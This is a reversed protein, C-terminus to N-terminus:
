RAGERRTNIRLIDATTNSTAARSMYLSTGTGWAFSRAAPELVGPYLTEGSGDPRVLVIPEAADTGVLLDGNAAIALSTATASNFATVDFHEEAPGLEGSGSVAFRWVKSAGAQEAVAYLYGDFVTLAAVKAEFGYESVSQDPAVRYIVANDGGAFLNGDDDFAVATLTASNDPLVVWTQQAGGEAFRFIARVGRVTYLLGDAGFVMSDWKFTTEVYTSRTGDPTIRVIGVSRGDSFLSVYVNGDDDTALAFPEEFDALSGFRESAPELEYQVANSFNEAGIVSVRIEVEAPTNPSAVRLQTPSAEIVEGRAAGFYVLNQEPTESFNQGTITVVDVGALAAGAPEVSTIVPDPANTADPDYLSDAPGSDCASLFVGVALVTLAVAKDVPKM